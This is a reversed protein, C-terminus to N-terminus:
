AMTSHPTPTLILKIVRGYYFLSENQSSVIASPPYAIRLTDSDLWSLIVDTFECNAVFVGGGGWSGSAEMEIIVQMRPADAFNSPGLEFATAQARGDPATIKTSAVVVTKKRPPRRPVPQPSQLKQKLGQLVAGRRSASPGTWKQLDSGRDIISIARAQVDPDLCGYNWQTAALALWFVPGDDIDQIETAWTRLLAETAAAPSDGNSLREMFEDRVDCATDDSFLAASSTGM